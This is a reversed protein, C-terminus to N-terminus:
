LTRGTRHDDVRAKGAKIAQFVVLAGCVVVGGGLVPGLSNFVGEYVGVSEALRTLIGTSDEIVSVVGGATLASGVAGQAVSAKAIRSGSAALDTVTATERAANLSRRIADDLAEFTASGAVGDTMLDNDAQFALVADRTLKGFDGDIKGPHYGLGTLTRQLQSVPAGKAGMRLNLAAPHGKRSEPRELGSLDGRQVSKASWYKEKAITKGEATMEGDVLGLVDEYDFVPCSKAAVECHGRFRIQGNYANEIQECIDLLADTQNDTFKDVELGHLCIAITGRNHGGQAAPTLELSRGDEVTGDKRIFLHYGIGNWGNVRHWADMTAANDHKPNDSASCHIFVTHVARRPKQFNYM